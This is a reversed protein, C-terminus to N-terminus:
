GRGPEHLQVGAMRQWEYSSTRVSAGLARDRPDRPHARALHMMMEAREQSRAMVDGWAGDAGVLVVRWRGHTVHEVAAQVSSDAGVAHRSGFDVMRRAGLVCRRDLVGHKTRAMWVMGVAAALLLLAGAVALWPSALWGAVVAALATFTVPAWWDYDPLHAAHPHPEPPLQLGRPHREERLALYASALCLLTGAVGLWTTAADTAEARARYGTVVSAALLLAGVVALVVPIPTRHRGM